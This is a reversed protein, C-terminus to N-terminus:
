PKQRQNRKEALGGALGGSSLSRALLEGGLSSALGSRGGSSDFLGVSVSGSGDCKTFDTPVLLAGVKEDSLKGELSQDTLDGLVELGIQTELSRGDQGKLFRGLGVQDTEKLIGVQTGDM